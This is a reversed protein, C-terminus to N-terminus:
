QIVEIVVDGTVRVLKGTSEDVFYYGDSDTETEVKGTSTWTKVVKGGSYLTVTHRSGLADLTGLWADTCGNMCVLAMILCASMVSVFWGIDIKSSKKM